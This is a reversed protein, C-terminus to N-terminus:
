LIELALAYHMSLYLLICYIGLAALISTISPQQDAMNRRSLVVTTDTRTKPPPLQRSHHSVQPLCFSPCHRPVFFYEVRSGLCTFTLHVLVETKSKTRQRSRRKFILHPLLNANVSTNAPQCAPLHFLSHPRIRNSSERSM